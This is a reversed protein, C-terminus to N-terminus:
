CSMALRQDATRRVLHVLAALRVEPEASGDASVRTLWPVVGDAGAPLAAVAQVVRLRQVTGSVATVDPFATVDSLETVDPFATVDARAPVDSSEFM